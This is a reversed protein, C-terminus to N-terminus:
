GGKHTSKAPVTAEAQAFKATSREMAAMNNQYYAQVKVVYDKTERFPPVQNGYKAVNGPGANYGALALEVDGKYMKLLDSLFSTGAMVNQRPDSSDNCGYAKATAPMLQMLGQAGVPSKAAPNFASEQKIVANILAVPVNYKQSAEQVVDQFKSAKGDIGPTAIQGQVQLSALSQATNEKQPVAALAPDMRTVHSLDLAALPQTNMNAPNEIVMTESPPTAFKVNMLQHLPSKPSLSVNEFQSLQSQFQSNMYQSLLSSIGPADNQNQERKERDHGIFPTKM